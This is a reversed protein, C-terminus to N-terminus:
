AKPEAAEELDAPRLWDQELFRRLVEAREEAEQRAQEWHAAAPGVGRGRASDAMRGCLAARENLTRLAVELATELQQFQAENMEAAGFRHGIHCAFTPLSDATKETVAGGCIPCTLAHPPNLEHGRHMRAEQPTARWAPAKGPRLGARRPPGPARVQRAIWRGLEDAPAQHDVRTHRLATAPMSPFAADAPSQVATLGGHHAIEALGATGDGLAGSLVVGVVRPGCAQAATRFLPDAAPRVRNERPGRSLRVRGAEVLLHRDPPAVLIRGPRIPEGDEAWAAPLRGFSSLLRPLESRATARLHVVVLVCAPLRRPLEPLLRQLAEIAGASGGIVVLDRRPPAEGM